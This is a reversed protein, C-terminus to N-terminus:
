RVGWRKAARQIENRERGLAMVTQRQSRGHVIRHALYHACLELEDFDGPWGYMELNRREAATLMHATLPFGHASWIGDLLRLAEGAVARAHVAPVDIARMRLPSVTGFSVSRGLWYTTFGRRPEFLAAVLIGRAKPSMADLAGADVLVVGGAHAALTRDIDAEALAATIDLRPRSRRPSAMVLARAVHLRAAPNPGTVLLSPEHWAAAVADSAVTPHFGLWHALLRRAEIMSRTMLLGAVEGFRLVGCATAVAESCVRGNYAIGNKSQTDRVTLDNGRREARAHRRSVSPHRIVVACDDASGITFTVAEPLDIQAALAPAWMAMVPDIGLHPARAHEPTTETSQGGKKTM